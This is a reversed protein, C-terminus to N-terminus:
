RASEHEVGNALKKRFTGKTGSVELVPGGAERALSVRADAWDGTLFVSAMRLHGGSRPRYLVDLSASGPRRTSAITGGGDLPVLVLEARGKAGLRFRGPGLPAGEVHWALAAARGPPGAADDAIVLPADSAFAITRGHTWGRWSSITSRSEGSRDFADVRATRPPDQAWPGGFGTLREIAAAFGTPEVLLGNLAERPIRKDRFLRRELPLYAYPDGGRETVLTEGAARLLTVTNTAKYRHWGEFRLNALLYTDGARWGSRFVIKDPALPGPATPTGSPGFLLCNGASPSVGDRRVPGEIGPQAWIRRGAAAASGLNRAALWVFRPDDLLVAGLYASPLAPAGSPDYDPEFGDPPAQLLLWEFSRRVADPPSAGTRRAQLWANTIWESQYSLADDSNRWRATWGRPVRDLYRRNEASLRPDSLGGSELAALLGAGNEQNEYPGEPRKGYAAAYVLDDWGVRLARRNIEAFWRGIRAQEAPSFLAPFSSRVRPYYHARLAAAYQWFKTRGRRSLDGRDVESLLERRFLSARAPDRTALALLAQEPPGKDPNADISALLRDFVANGDDRRTDAPARGCLFPSAASIGRFGPPAPDFFSRQYRALALVLAAASVAGAAAGLAGSSLRVGKGTTATRALAAAAPVLALWAAALLVAEAAVFLEEHAFGSEIEVAIMPAAGAAAALFGIRLAAAFPRAPSGAPAAAGLAVAWFLALAIWAAADSERAAAATGALAAAALAAAAFGPFTRLRGVRAPRCRRSLAVALVIFIAREIAREASFPIGAAARSGELLVLAALGFLAARLFRKL